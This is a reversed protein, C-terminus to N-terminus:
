YHDPALGPPTGYRRQTDRQNQAGMQLGAAYRLSIQIAHPALRWTKGGPHLEAWGATRLNDLDRTVLPAASGLARGIETPTLGQLEHGALLDILRLVRQQAANTYNTARTM